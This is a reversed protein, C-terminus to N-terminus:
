KTLEIMCRRQLFMRLFPRFGTFGKSIPLVNYYKRKVIKFSARKILHNLEQEHFEHFHHKWWLFHPKGKPTSLYMKGNTKLVKYAETLFHLPNFLHELVEFCFITDYRGKLKGIDLDINTNDIKTSFHKELVETLPNREGIDLTKGINRKGIFQFTVREINKRIKPRTEELQHMYPSTYNM